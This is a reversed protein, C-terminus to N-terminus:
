KLLKNILDEMLADRRIHYVYRMDADTQEAYKHEYSPLLTKEIRSLM